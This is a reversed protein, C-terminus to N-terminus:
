AHPSDDAQEQAESPSSRPSAPASPTEPPNAAADPRPQAASRPLMIRFTTGKGPDSEFHITGGAGSIVKRVLALGLGSGRPKTTFFPEFIRDHLAPDIGGGNDRVLLLASDAEAVTSVVLTGGRPMADQANACLNLLVQRLEDAGIAVQVDAPELHTIVRISQSEMASRLFDLAEAVVTNISADRADTIIQTRQLFDDLMLDLRRVERECAHTMEVQRSPDPSPEEVLSRLFHLNFRLATLPSRVEHALVSALMGRESLLSTRARLTQAYQQRAYNFRRMVLIFLLALVGMGGAAIVLATLISPRVARAFRRALLDADLGMSLYGHFPRPRGANGNSFNFRLTCDIFRGSQTWPLRGISRFPSAGEVSPAAWAQPKLVHDVQPQILVFGAGTRVAMLAVDGNTNWILIYGIGSLQSRFRNILPVTRQSWVLYSGFSDSRPPVAALDQRLNEAAHLLHSKQDQYYMKQAVFWAGGLSALLWLLEVVGFLAWFIVASKREENM